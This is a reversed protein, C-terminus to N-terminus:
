KAEIKKRIKQDIHKALIERTRELTQIDYIDANSLFTMLLSQEFPVDTPTSLDLIGISRPKETDDAPIRETWDPVKFIGERQRKKAIAFVSRGPLALALEEDTKRGGFEIIISTEGPTWNDTM